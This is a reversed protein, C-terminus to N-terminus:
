SIAEWGRVRAMEKNSLVGWSLGVRRGWRQWGKTALLPVEVEKM